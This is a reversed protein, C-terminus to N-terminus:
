PKASSLLPKAWSLQGELSGQLGPTALYAISQAQEVAYARKGPDGEENAQWIDYAMLNAVGSLSVRLAHSFYEAEDSSERVILLKRLNDSRELQDVVSEPVLRWEVADEDQYFLHWPYDSGLAFGRFPSDDADKHHEFYLQTLDFAQRVTKSGGGLLEYFKVAIKRAAVDQIGSDTGIVVPVGAEVLQEAIEESYCSNLFVFKLNKQAQLFTRLEDAKLLKDRGGERVILGSAMSHGTYHLMAIRRSLNLDDFVAFMKELTFQSLERPDCLNQQRAKTLATHIGEVEAQLQDLYEAPTNAIGLILIEPQQAM